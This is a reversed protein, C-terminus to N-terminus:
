PDHVGSVAGFTGNEEALVVKVTVSDGLVLPSNLISKLFSFGLGNCGSVELSEASSDRVKTGSSESLASSARQIM